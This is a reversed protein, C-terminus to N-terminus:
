SWRLSALRMHFRCFFVGCDRLRDPRRRAVGGKLPHRSLYMLRWGILRSVWLELPGDVWRRRQEGRFWISTARLTCSFLLGEWVIHKSGIYAVRLHSRARGGGWGTLHLIHQGARGGAAVQENKNREGCSYGNKRAIWDAQLAGARRKDFHTVSICLCILAVRCFLLSLCPCSVAEGM